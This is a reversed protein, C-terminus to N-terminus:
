GFECHVARQWAFAATTTQARPMQEGGSEAEDRQQDTDGDRQGVPVKHAPRERLVQANRELARDGDVPIELNPERPLWGDLEVSQGYAVRRPYARATQAALGM